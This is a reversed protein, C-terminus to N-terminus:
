FVSIFGLKLMFSIKKNDFISENPAKEGKILLKVRKVYKINKNALPYMRYYLCEKGLVVPKLIKKSLLLKKNM